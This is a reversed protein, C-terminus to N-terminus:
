DESKEAPCWEDIKARIAASFEPYFESSPNTFDQAGERDLENMEIVEDLRWAGLFFGLLEALTLPHKSSRTRKTPSPIATTSTSSAITSAIRVRRPM